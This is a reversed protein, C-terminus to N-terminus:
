IGHIMKIVKVTRKARDINQSQNIGHYHYVGAEPTYVIKYGRSLVHKAWLRDEVGSIEEDFPCELWAKRSIISNANHFFYDKSQVRREIGFTTWLDRKDFDNSDPLPEQKGYAGAVRSDYLEKLLNNLWMDNVPICHGSIITIAEGTTRRIGENLAYGYTFRGPPIKVINCKFRSAIRLTNDTSNDDVVILEDCKKKQLRIANLTRGLYGEENKTRIIISTKM